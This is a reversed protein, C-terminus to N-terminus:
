VSVRGSLVADNFGGGSRGTGGNRLVWWNAGANSVDHMVCDSRVAVVQHNQIDPMNDPQRPGWGTYDVDSGDAWRWVTVEQEDTLGIWTNTRSECLKFAYQVM